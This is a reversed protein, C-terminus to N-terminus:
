YFTGFVTCKEIAKDSSSTSVPFTKADVTGFSSVQKELFSISFAPRHKLTLAGIIDTLNQINANEASSV